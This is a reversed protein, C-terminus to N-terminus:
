IMNKYYFDIRNRPIKKIKSYRDKFKEMDKVSTFKMYTKRKELKMNGFIPLDRKCEKSHYILVTYLQIM